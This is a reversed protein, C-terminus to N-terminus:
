NQFDATIPDFITELVHNPDTSLIANNPVPISSFHDLNAVNVRSNIIHAHGLKTAQIMATATLLHTMM